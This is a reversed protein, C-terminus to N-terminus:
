APEDAVEEIRPAADYDANGFPRDRFLYGYYFQRLREHFARIRDQYALQAAIDTRALRTLLAQVGVSPLVWGLSRAAADRRELGARYAAVEDAVSEDGVQHFAFYWKWHFEPPLPPSGAWQPHNAYFRAMTDERPIDWARNVMERQALTIEAGQNLPLACNIAVHALTPLVLVLVLWCAALTAANAVSSWKLRGVLAALAIWFWLYAATLLLVAVITGAGVGSATAVAAFPLGLAAWLLAFRLLTRRRWL